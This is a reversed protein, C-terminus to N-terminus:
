YVKWQDLLGDVYALPVLGTAVSERNRYWHGIQLLMWQKISEPCSAGYGATYRVIVTNAGDGAEPWETEAARLLWAPESHSDLVYSASALTQGAGDTDIYTVDTVALVPPWLLRIEGGSVPFGDIRLEWLSSAISRGTIQGAMSSAAAILNSILTDEVSHEVRLHLKAEDLTLPQTSTSVLRTTM